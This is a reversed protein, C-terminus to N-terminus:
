QRSLGKIAEIFAWAGLLVVSCGLGMLLTGVCLVVWGETRTMIYEHM